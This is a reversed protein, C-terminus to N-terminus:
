LFNSYYDAWILGTYMKEYQTFNRQQVQGKGLLKLQHFNLVRNQLHGLGVGGGVLLRRGEAGFQTDEVGHRKEYTPHPPSPPQPNTV